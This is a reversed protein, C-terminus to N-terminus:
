SEDTVLEGNRIEFEHPGAIVRRDVIGHQKTWVVTYPGNSILSRWDDGFDAGPFFLSYHPGEGEQLHRDNWTAEAPGRLAGSPLTLEASVPDDAPQGDPTFLQLNITILRNDEDKLVIGVVKSEWGPVSEFSSSPAGGQRDNVAGTAAVTEPMATADRRSSKHVTETGAVRGSGDEDYVTEHRTIPDDASQPEGKVPKVELAGDVEVTGSLPVRTEQKIPSRSKYRRTIGDESTEEREYNPLPGFVLWVLWAFVGAVVAGAFWPRLFYHVPTTLTEAVVSRHNIAFDFNAWITYGWYLLFLGLAIVWLRGHRDQLEARKASVREQLRM